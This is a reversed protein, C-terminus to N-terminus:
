SPQEQESSPQSSRDNSLFLSLTIPLERIEEWDEDEYKYKLTLQGVEELTLVLKGITVHQIEQIDKLKEDQPPILEMNVNGGTAQNNWSRVFEVRFCVKGAKQPRFFVVVDVAVTAPFKGVGIGSPYVGILILKGNDERRVDDCIIISDLEIKRKKKSAM